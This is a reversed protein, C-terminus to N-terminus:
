TLSKLLAKITRSDKHRALKEMVTDAMRLFDLLSKIHEAFAAAEPSNKEQKTKELCITLTNLVPEIERKKRERLIICFMEWVDSVAIFYEKRDGLEVHRKVLGWSILDRTNMNANGRSIKLSRMIDDTCLPKPSAMLLAHIQAMTRNIGWATGMEGWSKIFEQRAEELPSSM